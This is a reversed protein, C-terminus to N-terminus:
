SAIVLNLQLLNCKITIKKYFGLGKLCLVGSYSVTESNMCWSGWGKIKWSRKEFTFSFDFQEFSLCKEKLYIYLRVFYTHSEWAPM